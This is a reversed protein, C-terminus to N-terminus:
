AAPRGGSRRASRNGTGAPRPPRLGAETARRVLQALTYRPDRELALDVAENALTGDGRVWAIMAVMTLVPTDLGQPLQGALSLLRAVPDRWEEARVPALGPCREMLSHTSVAADWGLEPLWRALVADRLEREALLVAIGARERASPRVGDVVWAALAGLRAGPDLRTLDLELIGLAVGTANAATEDRQRVQQVVEARSPLAARGALVLDAAAPVDAPAPVPTWGRDRDPVDDGDQVLASLQRGQDRVLLLDHLHTGTAAALRRAASELALAHEEEVVTPEREPLDYGVVTLLVAGSAVDRAQRLPARVADLHDQMADAPPLDLRASCVMQGLQPGRGPLLESAVVVVSHDPHYGILQPLLGVLQRAGRM